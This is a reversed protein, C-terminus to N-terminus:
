LNTDKQSLKQVIASARQKRRPCEEFDQSSCETERCDFECAELSPPVEMSFWNRLREWLKRNM